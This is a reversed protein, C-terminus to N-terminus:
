NWQLFDIAAPMVALVMLPLLFFVAVPLAMIAAIAAAKKEIRSMRITRGDAALARFAPGIETGQEDSQIFAVCASKVEIVDSRRGFNEFANRKEPLLSMETILITLDEALAQSRISIDAAVRRLAADISQGGEVLIIMLDLADPWADQISAQRKRTARDVLIDPIKMGIYAAFVVASLKLPLPLAMVDLVGFYFAGTAMGAIPFLFKAALYTAEARTGRRGARHLRDRMTEIAFCKKLALTRVLYDAVADRYSAPQTAVAPTGALTRPRSRDRARGMSLAHLAAFVSVGILASALALQASM